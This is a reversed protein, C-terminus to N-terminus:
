VERTWEPHELYTKYDADTYTPVDSAKNFKVFSYAACHHIDDRISVTLTSFMGKNADRELCWHSLKLDDARAPNTFPTM